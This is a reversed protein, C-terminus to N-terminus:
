GEGFNLSSQSSTVRITIDYQIKLMCGIALKTHICVSKMFSPLCEELPHKILTAIVTQFSTRNDEKIAMCKFEVKFRNHKTSCRYHLHIAFRKERVQAEELFM